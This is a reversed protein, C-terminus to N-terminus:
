GFLNTRHTAASASMAALAARLSSLIDGIGSAADAESAVATDLIDIM